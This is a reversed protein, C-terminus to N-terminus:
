MDYTTTLSFTFSILKGSYSVSCSTVKSPINRMCCNMRRTLGRRSSHVMPRTTRQCDCFQGGYLCDITCCGILLWVYTCQPGCFPSLSSKPLLKQLNHVIEIIKANQVASYSLTGFTVAGRVHLCVVLLILFFM